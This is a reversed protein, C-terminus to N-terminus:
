RINHRAAFTQPDFHDEAERDGIRVGVVGKAVYDKALKLAEAATDVEAVPLPRGTTMMPRLVSFRKM